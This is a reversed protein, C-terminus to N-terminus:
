RKLTPWTAEELLRVLALAYGANGEIPKGAERRLLVEGDGRTSITQGIIEFIMREHLVSTDGVGRILALMVRPFRAVEEETADGNLDYRGTKLHAELRIM